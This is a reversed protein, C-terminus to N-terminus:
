NAQGSLVGEIKQIDEPADVGILEDEINLAGITIENELLRLQELKEIKEYHTEELDVFKLLAEVRYSYIGIHHYWHHEKGDRAYPISARSFYLCQNNTESKVCKVVNPNTFGEESFDRRKVGTYVDFHSALHAQGIEAITKGSLLPEDGQVNIIYKYKKDAFYRQYALAIRESGTSVDDDIRVINGGFGKVCTEIEDNDTVVAYDYGSAQCNDVVYEIMPKGQIKAIPKGPFRSSGFRAPVLILFDSM